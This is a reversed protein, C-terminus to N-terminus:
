EPRQPASPLSPEPVAGPAGTAGSPPASVPAARDTMLSVIIDGPKPDPFGETTRIHVKGDPKLLVLPLVTDGYETQLSGFTFEASLKTKKVRPKPGALQALKEFTQAEGFLLRGRHEQSVAEHRGEHPSSFPLQYVERRGFEETYRLCALSNVEDNPTVALMRGLGGYDIQEYTEEALASGYLGPLGAMKCARVQDWDTDVLFVPCDEEALSAALTRVWPAAGVFLIGQPNAQVLGWRRALPGASLGYLLVTVLVLLFTVSVIEITGPYGAAVLRLAFESSVAAAVIGRPAMWCLFVREGWSLPSRWTAALVSLPRAVLIMVAVFAISDWGLARIDAPQLRAALVIFLFSILLVALTEKFEIVHRISVWKQNAVAIGMVTVALLGAEAHTANAAIFAALMLMLSVPNRLSDSVWFRALSLVLVAAAVCGALTGVVITSGLELAADALGERNLGAQVVSYVMVALIAGLPDIAIGEWKLLAGVKGRLRIHRVIPGIVTPGTVILIAGLLTAVQWPFGLLYHAAASCFVWLLGVGLLIL